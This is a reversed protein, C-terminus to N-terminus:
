EEDEMLAEKPGGWFLLGRLIPWFQQYGAFKSLMDAPNVKGDIHYFELVGQAIAERVRHYSLAVHRKNLKSQPISASTVVSQNDGFMISKVVKIGMYGLTLKLDIVQDTAIRAAVFESGYTASQVTSQRKSYWDVPTGNVLHLIGTSARGTLNCHMLNADVYTITVVPPGLPEPMDSPLEDDDIKYVANSWDYTKSELGSLDPLNTRFRIAGQKFKKLYGYIRKLRDLHGQRPAVRFRSLTM